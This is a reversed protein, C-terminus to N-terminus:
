RLAHGCARRTQTYRRSRTRPLALEDNPDGVDPSQPQVEDRTGTLRQGGVPDPWAVAHREMDNEEVDGLAHSYPQTYVADTEKLEDVALHYRLKTMGGRRDGKEGSHANCVKATCSRSSAFCSACAWSIALDSGLCLNLQGIEQGCISQFATHM